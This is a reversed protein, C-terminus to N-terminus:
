PSGPAGACLRIRRLTSERGLLYLTADIPPSVTSGTVAVRLPQAVKGFGIGRVAAYDNLEGEIASRTWAPLAELREALEGLTAYGAGDNKELFKQVAKPDHEIRDDPRGFFAGDRAPDSLLRTRPQYVEAFVAFRDADAALERFWPAVGVNRWFNELHKQFDERSMAQLDEGNFAALKERDFRANAKGIADLGFHDRLYALGFRERDKEPPTWGLLALYNCLTEPLYGNRRFDAVEIEPAKEGLERLVWAAATLSDNEGRLFASVTSEDIEAASEADTAKGTAELIAAAERVESDWWNVCARALEDRSRDSRECAARAAKAKDRKSMKSGDPNLIAPMHAYVPQHFGLAEQLALHRPTNALHEQGRLVHTVGMLADDVVVAFHYTPLGDAKRVVFDEQKEAPTTVAGLVADEVTMERKPARFYTAGEHEYVHGASRLKELQEDYVGAAARESQFYPGREGREGPADHAPGEDWGLGLWALDRLLGSVAERSSRRRDTDEVRLLFRGGHRRAFAWAFLATRAGGVHLSGTPSPAFRTVVPEAM